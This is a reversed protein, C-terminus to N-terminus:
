RGGKKDDARLLELLYDYEFMKGPCTKSAFDRHFFVHDYDIGYISRLWNVLYVLKLLMATSPAVVDYNGVCCIGISHSNMGKQKTHAGAKFMSRGAFIEVEDGVLELGWHYGIDSWPEKVSKGEEQLERGQEPTIINGNYAWSTHYRRIAAWSVTKSDATASHHIVISDPVLTM